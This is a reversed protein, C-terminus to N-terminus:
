TMVKITSTVYIASGHKEAHQKAQAITDWASGDYTVIYFIRGIQSM